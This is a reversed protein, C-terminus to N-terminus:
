ASRVGVSAKKPVFGWWALGAALAAGGGVLLALLLNSSPKKQKIFGRDDLAGGGSSPSPASGGNSPPVPSPVCGSQPVSVGEPQVGHPFSKPLRAVPPTEATYSYGRYEAIKGGAKRTVGLAALVWDDIKGTAERGVTEAQFARVAASTDSGWLGDLAGPNLANRRVGAPVSAAVDRLAQQVARVTARDTYSAAAAGLCDGGSFYLGVLTRTM